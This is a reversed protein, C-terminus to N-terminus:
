HCAHIAEQGYMIMTRNTPAEPWYPPLPQRITIPLEAVEAYPSSRWSDFSHPLYELGSPEDWTVMFAVPFFKLLWFTFPTAGVTLSQYAADRVMVHAKFPYAWYFATLGDPLPKSEDLIFDSVAETLPGKLYRDVGQAAMHGLLSRIVAQPQCQVMLRDPLTLSSKLANGIDNVFKIFHPDYKSGLFTNNCRGCLTRYKVGNQSRRGRYTTPGSGLHISIHQLAVQTPKLCGKPPTHDETLPGLQGCINCTGNKPGRTTIAITM